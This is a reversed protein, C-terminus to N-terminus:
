FPTRLFNYRVGLSVGIHTKGIDLYDFGQVDTNFVLNKTFSHYISFDVFLEFPFECSPVGFFYEINVNYGDWSFNSTPRNVVNGKGWFYGLQMNLGHIIETSKVVPIKAGLGVAHMNTGWKETYEIYNIDYRTYFNPSQYEYWFDVGQWFGFLKQINIAGKVGLGPDNRVNDGGNSVFLNGTGAISFITTFDRCNFFFQERLLKLNDEYLQAQAKLRTLMERLIDNTAGGKMVLMDAVTDSLQKELRNIKELLLQRDTEPASFIEQELNMAIRHYKRIIRFDMDELEEFTPQFVRTKPEIGMIQLQTELMVCTRYLELVKLAFLGESEEYMELESDSPLAPVNIIPKAASIVTFGMLFACISTLIIKM